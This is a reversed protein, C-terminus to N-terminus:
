AEGFHQGVTQRAAPVRLQGNQPDGGGPEAGAQVDTRGDRSVFGPELPKADIEQPNAQDDDHDAREGALPERDHLFEAKLM